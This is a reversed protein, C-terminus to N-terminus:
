YSKKRVCDIPFHMLFFLLSDSKQIVACLAWSKKAQFPIFKILSIPSDVISVNAITSDSLLSCIIWSYGKKRLLTNSPGCYSGFFSASLSFLIVIGWKFPRMIRNFFNEMTSVSSLVSPSPANHMFVFFPGWSKNRL